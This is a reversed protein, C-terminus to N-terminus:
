RRWRSNDETEDDLTHSSNTLNIEAPQNSTANSPFAYAFLAERALRKEELSGCKFFIWLAVLQQDKKDGEKLMEIISNSTSENNDVRRKKLRHRAAQAGNNVTANVGTGKPMKCGIGEFDLLELVAISYIMASTCRIITGQSGAKPKWSAAHCWHELEKQSGWEDKDDDHQGSRNYNTFMQHLYKRCDTWTSKVWDDGRIIGRRSLNAPELEHTFNALYAWEAESAQYPTKQHATM